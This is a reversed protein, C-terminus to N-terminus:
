SGLAPPPTGATAGPPLGHEPRWGALWPALPLVHAPRGSDAFYSDVAYRAGTATEVVVATNHPQLGDVFFGRHAPNGIEHWVLLGHAALMRLSTMTNVTEDVCDLQGAESWPVLNGAVDAETGAQPAVYREILGIALSLRRREEAASEPSPDFVAAVSRWESPALGVETRLNCNSGHCATFRAPDPDAPVLRALRSEESATCASLMLALALVPWHM